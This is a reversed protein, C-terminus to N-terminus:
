VKLNEDNFTNYFMTNIIIFLLIFCYSEYSKFRFSGVIEIHTTSNFSGNSKVVLALCLIGCFTIILKCFLVQSNRRKLFM